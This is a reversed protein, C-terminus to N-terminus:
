QGEEEPAAQEDPKEAAADYRRVIEDTVEIAKNAYILVPSLGPNNLVIMSSPKEEAGQEGYIVSPPVPAWTFIMSYGREDGLANVIVAIEGLLENWVREMDESLEQKVDEAHRKLDRVMRRYEEEKQKRTEENWLASKKNIELQLEQAKKSEQDLEAQKAEYRARMVEAAEQGKKSEAFVRQLDVFAITVGGPAEQALARRFAPAAAIGAILVFVGVKLFLRYRMNEEEIGARFSTGAGGVGAVELNRGNRSAGGM